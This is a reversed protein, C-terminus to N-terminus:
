SSAKYFPHLATGLRKLWSDEERPQKKQWADIPRGIIAELAERTPSLVRELEEVDRQDIKVRKAFAAVKRSNSRRFCIGDHWPAGLFQHLRRLEAEPNELLEELIIFHHQEVPFFELWRRIHKHYESRYVYAMTSGERELKERNEIAYSLTLAEDTNLRSYQFHSVARKVPDRLTWVIKAEPNYSRLREPVAPKVAYPPSKEGRVVIRDSWDFLAHYHELEKEYNKAHSFFQPEGRAVNIKPNLMLANRLSSTGSRMAGVIFFDVRQM